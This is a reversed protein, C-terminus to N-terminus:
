PAQLPQPYILSVKM